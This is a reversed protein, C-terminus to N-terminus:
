DRLQGEREAMIYAMCYEDKGLLAEAALITAVMDRETPDIIASDFGAQMLLVLYIRNVISRYPLGFSINSEGGTTHIGPFTQMIQRVSEICIMAQDPSTSLPQICPDVFLRDTAIGAKTCAAVMKRTTALRQDISTPLGAEDMALCVLKARYQVALPIVSDMREQEGNISNIMVDPNKVLRLAAALAAPNASDLTLPLDTVQQALEVLWCLDEVERAPDSGANLDIYTARCRAQSEIERKIHAENRDALAQKIRKRTANIREAIIIM